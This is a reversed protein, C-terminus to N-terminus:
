ELAMGDAPSVTLMRMHFIFTALSTGRSEAAGHTAIYAGLASSARFELTVRTGAINRPLGSSNLAKPFHWSIHNPMIRKLGGAGWGSTQASNDKICARLQDFLRMNENDWLTPYVKSVNIAQIPDSQGDVIWRFTSYYDRQGRISRDFENAGSAYPVTLMAFARTLYNPTPVVHEHQLAGAPVTDRHSLVTIIPLQLGKNLQKKLAEVQKADPVVSALILRPETVSYNVGAAATGYIFGVVNAGLGGAANPLAATFTCRVKGGALTVSAITVDHYTYDVNAVTTGSGTVYCTIQQGAFFPSNEVTMDANTQFYTSGDANDFTVHLRRWLYGTAADIDDGPAATNYLVMGGTTASREIRTVSVATGRLSTATAATQGAYVYAEAVDQTALWDEDETRSYDIRPFARADAYVTASTYNGGTRAITCPIRPGCVRYDKLCKAADELLIEITLGNTAALPWTGYRGVGLLNLDLYVKKTAYTTSAAAAFDRNLFQFPDSIAERQELQRAAAEDSGFGYCQLAFALRNVDDIQELPAALGQVRVEVRKVLSWGGGPLTLAVKGTASPTLRLEIKSRTLDAFGEGPSIKFTIRDGPSFPGGEEAHLKKFTAM